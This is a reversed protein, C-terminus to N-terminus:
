QMEKDLITIIDLDKIDYATIVFYVSMSLKRFVIQLYRGSNLKAYALFSGDKRKTYFYDHENFAEDIEEVTVDHKEFHIKGGSDCYFEFDIM